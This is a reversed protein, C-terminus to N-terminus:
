ANVTYYEDCGPCIGGYDGSIQHVYETSGNEWITELEQHFANGRAESADIDQMCKPVTGDALIVMDRQLHRCAHRHIPALEAVKRDPLRGAFSNYKEIIVGACRDKWSHYFSRLHEESEPLRTAQVYTRDPAVTVAWEAFQHAEEFGEGRLAHYIHPDDADLFVIVKGNVFAFEQLRTRDDDSWGVGSTEIYFPLGSEHLASLVTGIESHLAPEGGAGLSVTAGPAFSKIRNLLDRFAAAPMETGDGRSWPEYSVDQSLAATIQVDIWAPLTRQISGDRGIAAVVDGLERNGTAILRRCAELNRRSDAALVVRLARLDVDSVETEIDFANIDKQITEFLFGRAFGSEDSLVLLAGLAEHRLIEPALGQPYGDAFTYDCWWERHLDVLGLALEEQVCPQDIWSVVLTDANEDGVRQLARLYAASSRADEVEFSTWDPPIARSVCELASSTGVVACGEAGLRMALRTSRDVAIQVANRGNSITEFAFNLLEPVINVIRVAMSEGNTDVGTSDVM